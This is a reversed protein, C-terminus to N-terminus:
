CDVELSCAAAPQSGAVTMTTIAAAAVFVIALVMRALSLSKM